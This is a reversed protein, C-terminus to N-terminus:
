ADFGDRHSRILADVWEGGTLESGSWRDIAVLVEDNLTRGQRQAKKQLRELVDDPVGTIMVDAM